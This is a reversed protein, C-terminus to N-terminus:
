NCTVVHVISPDKPTSQSFFCHLLVWLDFMCFIIEKKGVTLHHSLSIQTNMDEENESILATEDKGFVFVAGGVSHLLAKLAAHEAIAAFREDTIMHELLEGLIRVVVQLVWLPPPPARLVKLPKQTHKQNGTM